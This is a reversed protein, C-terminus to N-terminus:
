RDAAAKHRLSKGALAGTVTGRSIAVTGNVFVYRAGVSYQHPDDFTAADRFTKPDFVAIDAFHGSKLLGRDTLGLIEAPLGTASRIARELPLVSEALSYHGIKRPFTGYSRPHPRDAGPLYARGDSATAVWDITMVHRVDDESMSFNVIQAGGGRFIDYAVDIPQRKESRAIDLLSRGVWERRPSYRAIRVDDGNSKAALAEAVIERLQSGSEANDLRKILEARGGARCCRRM